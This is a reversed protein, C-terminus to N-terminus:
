DEVLLKAKSQDYKWDAPLKKAKKYYRILRNIKSSTLQLGRKATMDHKNTEFHKLASIQKKVLFSLDEPLNYVIKNQELIKTISKKTTLKVDPIGYSDRLILGIKSPKIGTKALKLVLSEVEAPKYRIWGTNPELPKTSKSKGKNRSYM